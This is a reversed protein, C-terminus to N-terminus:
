AVLYKGSHFVPDLIGRQVDTAFHSHKYLHFEQQIVDLMKCKFIKMCYNIWALILLLWYETSDLVLLLDIWDQIFQGLSGPKRYVFVLLVTKNRIEMLVSLIELTCTVQYERIVKAKETNFWKAIGHNAFELIGDWGINKYSQNRLNTEM